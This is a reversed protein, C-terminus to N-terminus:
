TMNQDREKIKDKERKFTEAELRQLLAPFAQRDAIQHLQDLESQPLKTLDLNRENETKTIM